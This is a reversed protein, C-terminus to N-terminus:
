PPAEDECPRWMVFVKPEASTTNLFYGEAESRHLEIEYGEFRWRAGRADICVPAQEVRVGDNAAAEVAVPDWRESQWRNALPTCEVIVSVPFRAIPMSM